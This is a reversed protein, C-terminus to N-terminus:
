LHEPIEEPNNMSEDESFIPQLSDNHETDGCHKRYYKRKLDQEIENNVENIIAMIHNALGKM